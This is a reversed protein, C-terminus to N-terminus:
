ETGRLQQLHLIMFYVVVIVLLFHYLLFHLVL